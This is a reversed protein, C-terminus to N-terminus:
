VPEKVAASWVFRGIKGCVRNLLADVAALRPYDSGDVLVGHKVVKLGANELLRTHSGTTYEKQYGWHWRRFLTRWARGSRMVSYLNSSIVLLRGGPRLIRLAEALVAEPNDQVHEIVNNLLVLDYIDSSNPLQRADGVMFLCRPHLMRARQIATTSIDIGVVNAQTWEKVATVFGTGCGIDAIMHLGANIGVVQDGGFARRLVNLKQTAKRKRLGDDTYNPSTQWIHNWTM